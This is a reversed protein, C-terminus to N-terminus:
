EFTGQRGEGYARGTNESRARRAYDRAKEALAADLSRPLSIAPLPPSPAEANPAPTADDM